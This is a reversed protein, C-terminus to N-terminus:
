VTFIGCLISILANGRLCASGIINMVCIFDDRDLHEMKFERHIGYFVTIDFKTEDHKPHAEDYYQLYSDPVTECLFLCEWPVNSGRINVNKYHFIDRRIRFSSSCSEGIERAVMEPPTDSFTFSLHEVESAFLLAEELKKEEYPQNFLQRIAPEISGVHAEKLGFNEIVKSPINQAVHQQSVLFMGLGASRAERTSEKNFFKTAIEKGTLTPSTASITHFRKSVSSVNSVDEASLSPLFKYVVEDPLNEVTPRVDNNTTAEM